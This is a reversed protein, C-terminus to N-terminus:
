LGGDLGEAPMRGDASVLIAVKRQHLQGIPPVVQAVTKLFAARHIIVHDRVIKVKHCGCTGLGHILNQPHIPKRGHVIWLRAAEQITLASNWRFDCAPKM